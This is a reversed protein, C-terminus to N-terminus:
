RIQERRWAGPTTGVIKTFVRSFHSQDTFGTACAVDALSATADVLM